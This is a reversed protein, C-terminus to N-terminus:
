LSAHGHAFSLSVPQLVFLHSKYVMGIRQVRCCKPQIRKLRRLSDGTKFTNPCAHTCTYMDM